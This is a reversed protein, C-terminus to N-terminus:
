GYPSFLFVLFYARRITCGESESKLFLKPWVNAGNPDVIDHWRQNVLVGSRHRSKEMLGKSTQLKHM